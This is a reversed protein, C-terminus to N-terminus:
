AAILNGAGLDSVATAYGTIVHTDSAKCASSDVDLLIGIGAGGVGRMTNGSIVCHHSGGSIRTGNRCDRFANGTIAVGQSAGGVLLVGWMTPEVQGAFANGVVTLHSCGTGILLHAETLLRTCEFYNGVITMAASNTIRIGDRGFADGVICGAITGVSCEDMNLSDQGGAFACDRIRMQALKRMRVVPGTGVNVRTFSLRELVIYQRLTTGDGIEFGANDPMVLFSSAGDGFLYLNDRAVPQPATPFIWRDSPFYIGGRGAPPLAQVCAAFAATADSPSGFDSIDLVLDACSANAM